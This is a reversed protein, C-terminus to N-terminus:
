EVVREAELIVKAAQRVGRNYRLKFHSLSSVLYEPTGLAQSIPAFFVCPELQTIRDDAVQWYQMLKVFDKFEQSKLLDRQQELRYYPHHLEIAVTGNLNGAPLIDVNLVGELFDLQALKELDQQINRYGPMGSLELLEVFASYDKEQAKPVKFSLRYPMNNINYMFCFRYPELERARDLLKILGKWRRQEGQWALIARSVVRDMDGSIDTFLAARTHEPSNVDLELDLSRSEGVTQHYVKLFNDFPTTNSGEEPLNKFDESNLKATLGLTAEGSLAAEVKMSRARELLKFQKAVQLVKNKHSGTLPKAIEELYRLWGSLLGLNNVYAIM